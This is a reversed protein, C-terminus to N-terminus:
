IKAVKNSLEELKLRMPMFRNAIDVMQDAMKDAQAVNIKIKKELEKTETKDKKKQAKKLDAQLGIIVDARPMWKGTIGGVEKHGKEIDAFDSDFRITLADCIKKGDTSTKKWIERNSKKKEAVGLVKSKFSTYDPVAAM